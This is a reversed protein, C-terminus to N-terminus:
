NDRLGSYLKAFTGLTQWIAYNIVCIIAFVIFLPLNNSATSINAMNCSALTDVIRDSGAPLCREPTKINTKFLNWVDKQHKWLSKSCIITPQYCLFLNIQWLFMWGKLSTLSTTRTNKNNVKFMNWVKKYHENREIAVKHWYVNTPYSVNFLELLDLLTNLAM